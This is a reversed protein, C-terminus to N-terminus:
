PFSPILFKMSGFTGCFGREGQVQSVSVGHILFSNQSSHFIVYM